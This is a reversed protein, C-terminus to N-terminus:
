FFFKKIKEKKNILIKLLYHACLYYWPLLIVTYTFFLVIHAVTNVHSHSFFSGISTYMAFLSSELLAIKKLHSERIGISIIYYNAIMSYTIMLGLFLLNINSYNNLCFVSVILLVLSMLHVMFHFIKM